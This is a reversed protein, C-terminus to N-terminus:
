VRMHRHIEVSICASLNEFNSVELENIASTAVKILQFLSEAIFSSFYLTAKTDFFGIFVTFPNLSPVSDGSLLGLGPILSYRTLFWRIKLRWELRLWTLSSSFLYFSMWRRRLRWHLFVVNDQLCLGLIVLLWSILSMYMVTSCSVGDHVCVQRNLVVFVGSAIAISLKRFNAGDKQNNCKKMFSGAAAASLARM